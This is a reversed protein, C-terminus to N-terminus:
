DGCGCLLFRVPCTIILCQLQMQRLSSPCAVISHNYLYITSFFHVVCSSDSVSLAVRDTITRSDRGGNGIIQGSRADTGSESEVKWLFDCDMICLIVSVSSMIIHAVPAEIM